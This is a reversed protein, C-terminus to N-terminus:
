DPDETFFHLGLLLAVVAHTVCPAKCRLDQASEICAIKFAPRAKEKTLPALTKWIQSLEEPGQVNALRYLSPAQLDWREAPNKKKPPTAQDVPQAQQVIYTPAPTAPQARTRPVLHRQLTQHSVTIKDALKLPPLSNVGPCAQYLSARLWTMLPALPADWNWATVRALLLTYASDLSLYPATLLPHSLVLPTICAQPIHATEAGTVVQPICPDEPRIKNIESAVKPQSQVPHDELNWWDDNIAITPPTDGTVIDRSFAVIHGDLATRNSYSFPLKETGWLVRIHHTPKKVIVLLDPREKRPLSALINMRESRSAGGDDQLDFIAPYAALSNTRRQKSCIEVLTSNPKPPNKITQDELTRENTPEHPPLHRTPPRVLLPVHSTGVQEWMIAEEEGAATDPTPPRQPTTPTPTGETRSAAMGQPSEIIKRLEDAQLNALADLNAGPTAM